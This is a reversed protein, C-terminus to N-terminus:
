KLWLAAAAVNWCISSRKWDEVITFWLGLCSAIGAVIILVTNLGIYGFFKDFCRGCIQSILFERQDVSLDPFANQVKAGGQRARLALFSVKIRQVENCEMCSGVVYCHESDGPILEIEGPIQM